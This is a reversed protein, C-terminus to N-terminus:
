EIILGRFGGSVGQFPRQFEKFRKQSVRFNGSVGKSSGQFGPISRLVISIGRSLEEWPRSTGQFVEPDGM